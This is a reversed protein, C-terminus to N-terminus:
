NPLKLFECSFRNYNILVIRNKYLVEVYTDEIMSLVLYFGPKAWFNIVSSDPSEIYIANVPYKIELLV